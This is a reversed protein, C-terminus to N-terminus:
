SNFIKDPNYILDVSNGKDNYAYIIGIRKTSYDFYWEGKLTEWTNRKVLFIGTFFNNGYTGIEQNWNLKPSESKKCPVTYLALDNFLYSDLFCGNFINSKLELSSVKFENKNDIGSTPLEISSYENKSIFGGAGESHRNKFYLNGGPDKLKGYVKLFENKNPPNISNFESTNLFIYQSPNYGTSPYKKSGKKYLTDESDSIESPFEIGDSPYFSVNESFPAVIGQGKYRIKEDQADKVVFFGNGKKGSNPGDIVEYSYHPYETEPNYYIEVNGYLQYIDNYSIMFEGSNGKPIFEIGSLGELSSKWKNGSDKYTKLFNEDPGKLDKWSKGSPKSFIPYNKNGSNDWSYNGNLGKNPGTIVEYINDEESEVILVKGSFLPSLGTYGKLEEDWEGFKQDAAIPNEEIEEKSKLKINKKKGAIIYELSQAIKSKSIDKIAERENIFDYYDKVKKM